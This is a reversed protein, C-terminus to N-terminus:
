NGSSLKCENVWNTYKDVIWNPFLDDLTDKFTLYLDIDIYKCSNVYVPNFAYFGKKKCDVVNNMQKIIQKSEAFKLFDKAKRTSLKLVEAINELNAFKGDISIVNTNKYIHESLIYIYLLYKKNDVIDSLKIDQRFKSHYERPRLMAGNNKWLVEKGM